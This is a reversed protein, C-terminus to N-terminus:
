DVKAFYRLRKGKGIRVCDLVKGDIICSAHDRDVVYYTGKPHEAVFQAYTDKTLVVELGLSRLMPMIRTDAMGAGRVYGFREAYSICELMPMGLCLSLARMTCSNRPRGVQEFDIPMCGSNISRENM